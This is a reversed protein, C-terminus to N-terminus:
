PIDSIQLSPHRKPFIVLGAFLSFVRGILMLSEVTRWLGKNLPLQLRRLGVFNKSGTVSNTAHSVWYIRPEPKIAAPKRSHKNSSRNRLKIWHFARARFVLRRM